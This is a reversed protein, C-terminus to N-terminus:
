IAIYRHWGYVTQRRIQHGDHIASLSRNSGIAEQERLNMISEAKIRELRM